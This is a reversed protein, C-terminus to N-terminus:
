LFYISSNKLYCDWIGGSNAAPSRIVSRSDFFINSSNHSNSESNLSYGLIEEKQRQPDDTFTIWYANSEWRNILSYEFENIWEMPPIGILPSDRICM